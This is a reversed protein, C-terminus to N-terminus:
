RKRGHKALKRALTVMEDHEALLGPTGVFVGRNDVNSEWIVGAERRPIWAARLIHRRKM